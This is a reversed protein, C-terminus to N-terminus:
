TNGTGRSGETPRPALPHFYCGEGAAGLIRLIGYTIGWFYTSIRM